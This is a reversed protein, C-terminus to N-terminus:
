EFTGREHSKNFRPFPHKNCTVSKQKLARQARMAPMHFLPLQITYRMVHLTLHTIILAFNLIIPLFSGLFAPNVKISNNTTIAIMAIRAAISSGAREFAFDFLLCVLQMLLMRCIPMALAM